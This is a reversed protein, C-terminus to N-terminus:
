RLSASYALMTTTPPELLKGFKSSRKRCSNRTSAGESASILIVMADDGMVAAQRPPESKPAESPKAALVTVRASYWSYPWARQRRRKKACAHQADGVRRRPRM